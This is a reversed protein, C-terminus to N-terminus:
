LQAQIRRTLICLKRHCQDMNDQLTSLLILQNSCESQIQQHSQRIKLIVEQIAELIHNPLSSHDNVLCPDAIPQTSSQLAGGDRSCGSPRWLSVQMARASANLVKDNLFRITAASDVMKMRDQLLQTYVAGSLAVVSVLHELTIAQLKRVQIGSTM